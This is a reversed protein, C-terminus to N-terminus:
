KGSGLNATILILLSAGAFIGIVSMLKVIMEKAAPGAFVDLVYLASIIALLTIALMVTIKVIIFLGKLM